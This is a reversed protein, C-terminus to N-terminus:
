GANSGGNRYGLTFHGHKNVPKKSTNGELFTFIVHVPLRIKRKRAVTVGAGRITGLEPPCEFCKM